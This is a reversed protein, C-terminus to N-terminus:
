PVPISARIQMGDSPASTFDITGGLLESRERMGALGASDGSTGRALAAEVDCGVGNDAILLVVNPDKRTLRLVVQSARAHKGINNMAEQAIRFLVTDIEDGLPVEGSKTVDRLDCTVEFGHLHSMTRALWRLAADLGLDDLIQPRMLRSIERIEDICERVQDIAVGISERDISADQPDADHFRQLRHLVANLKQGVGDHLDRSLRRRETETVRLVSRALHRFRADDRDLLGRIRQQEERLSRLTDRLSGDAEGGQDSGSDKM